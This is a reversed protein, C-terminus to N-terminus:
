PRRSTWRATTSADAPSSPAARARAGGGHRRRPRGARRATQLDDDGAHRRRHAPLRRTRRGARHRSRAPWGRRRCRRCRAAPPATTAVRPRRRVGTRARHHRRQRHAQREGAELGRGLGRPRGQRRRPRHTRSSCRTRGRSSCVQRQQRDEGRLHPRHQRPRAPCTTSWSSRRSARRGARQRLQHVPRPRLRPDHPRLRHGPRRGEHGDRGSAGDGARRPPRHGARRRRRALLSQVDSIQQSDDSNASQVNVDPAAAGQVQRRVPRPRSQWRAEKLTDLSLGILVHGNAAAPGSAHGGRAVLLGILVSLILSIVMLINRVDM